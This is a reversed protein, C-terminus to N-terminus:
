CKLHVDLYTNKKFSFQNVVAMNEFIILDTVLIFMCPTLTQKKKM